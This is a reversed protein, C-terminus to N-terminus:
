IAERGVKGQCIWLFWKKLDNRELLQMRLFKDHSNVTLNVEQLTLKVSYDQFVKVDSLECQPDVKCEKFIRAMANTERMKVEEVFRDFKSKSPKIVEEDDGDVVPRAVEDESDDQGYINNLQPNLGIQNAQINTVSESVHASM